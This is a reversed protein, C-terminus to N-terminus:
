GGMMRYTKKNAIQFHIPIAAIFILQAKTLPPFLHRTKIPEVIEASKFYVFRDM